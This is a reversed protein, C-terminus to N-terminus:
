TFVEGQHFGRPRGYDPLCLMKSPVLLGSESEPESDGKPESNSFTEEEARDLANQTEESAVADAEAQREIESDTSPNNLGAPPQVPLELQPPPPRSARRARKCNATAIGVRISQRSGKSYKPMIPATSIHLFLPSHHVHPNRLITSAHIASSPPHTSQPANGRWLNKRSFFFQNM